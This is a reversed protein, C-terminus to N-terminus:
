TVDVATIFTNEHKENKFNQSKYSLSERVFFRQM